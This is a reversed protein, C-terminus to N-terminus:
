SGVKLAYRGPVKIDLMKAIESKQPDVVIVMGSWEYTFENSGCISCKEEDPRALAKCKICAKFM